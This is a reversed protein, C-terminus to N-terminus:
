RLFDEVLDNFKEPKEWFMAHSSIPKVEASPIHQNLWTKGREYWSDRLLFLISTTRDLKKLVDTYDSIMGDVFLSLAVYDPTLMMEELMWQKELSDVPEKLMWDIVGGADSKRSTLLGELSSRYGEFDGYVWEKSSDGIWKPPEDICIIRAVQDIGFQDLYSYITLCGSSWGVLIVKSLNLSLIMDRLDMAHQAYTNSQFTKDSRGQGRPDYTIVRYQDKFHAKQKKFFGATMTWGPIFLMAQGNGVEEYYLKVKKDQVYIFSEQAAGSLFSLAM